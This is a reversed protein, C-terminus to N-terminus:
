DLKIYSSLGSRLATISPLTYSYAGTNMDSVKAVWMAGANNGITFANMGANYIVEGTTGTNTKKWTVAGDTSYYACSSAAVMTVTASSSLLDSARDPYPSSGPLRRRTWTLTDASTFCEGTSTFIYWRHADAFVAQPAGSLGTLLTPDFRTFTVGDDTSKYILGTDAYALMTSGSYAVQYIAYTAGADLNPTCFRWTRFNDSSQFFGGGSAKAHVSTYKGATTANAKRNMGVQNNEGFWNTSAFYGNEQFTNTSTNFVRISNVGSQVDWWLFRNNAVTTGTNINISRLSPVTIWSEGTRTFGNSQFAISASASSTGSANNYSANYNPNTVWNIGDTSMYRNYYLKGGVNIIPTTFSAGTVDPLTSPSCAAWGSTGTASHVLVAFNSSGVAMVYRGAIYNIGRPTTSISGNTQITSTEAWTTGNSSHWVTSGSHRKALFLTNVFELQTITMSAVTNATWTIGDASTLVTTTPSDVPMVVFVGNGFAITNSTPAGTLTTTNFVRGVWTIGDTSTLYQGRDSTLAVYISNGFAITKVGYSQASYSSETVM